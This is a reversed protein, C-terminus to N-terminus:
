VESPIGMAWPSASRSSTLSLALTRTGGCIRGFGSQVEDAVVLGGAAHVREIVGLIYGAPLTNLGETSFLSDFLFGALGHGSKTLSAIAADVEAVSSGLLDSESMTTRDMDPIRIPRVYESLAEGTRLGTTLGALYSTHGHHSFDSVLVGSAGTAQRVMRFALDNAESGSNTFLVRNLETPFTSLLQEAYDVVRDNLYRTHVNLRHPPCAAPAGRDPSLFLRCGAPRHGRRFRAVGFDGRFDGRPRTFRPVPFRGLHM